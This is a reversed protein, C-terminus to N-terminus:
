GGMGGYGCISMLQSSQIESFERKGHRPCGITSKAKNALMSFIWCSDKRQQHCQWKCLWLFRFRCHCVVSPNSLSCVHSVLHSIANLGVLHWTTLTIDELVGRWVCYISCTNSATLLALYKPHIDGATEAPVSM